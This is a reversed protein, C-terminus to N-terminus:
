ALSEFGQLLVWGFLYNLMQLELDHLLIESKFQLLERNKGIIYRPPYNPSKIVNTSSRLVKLLV